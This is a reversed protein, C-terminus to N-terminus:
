VVLILQVLRYIVVLLCVIHGLGYCCVIHGMAVIKMKLLRTGVVIIIIDLSSKLSHYLYNGKVHHLSTDLNEFANSAHFIAGNCM